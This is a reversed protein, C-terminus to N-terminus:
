NNKLLNNYNVICNEKVRKLDDGLMLLTWLASYTNALHPIDNINIFKDGSSNVLLKFSMFNGGRFGHIKCEEFPIYNSSKCLEDDNIIEEAEGIQQFYIWDIIQKSTFPLNKSIDPDEFANLLCLGGVVFYICTIRHPIMSGM